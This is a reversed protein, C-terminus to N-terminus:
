FKTFKEFKIYVVNDSLNQKAVKTKLFSEFKKVPAM